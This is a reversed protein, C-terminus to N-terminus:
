EFNKGYIAQNKSMRKPRHNGQGFVLDWDSVEFKIFGDDDNDNDVM